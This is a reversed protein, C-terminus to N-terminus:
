GEGDLALVEDRLAIILDGAEEFTYHAIEPLPRDLKGHLVRIAEAQTKTIMRGAM